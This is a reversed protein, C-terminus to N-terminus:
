RTHDSAFARYSQLRRVRHLMSDKTSFTATIKDGQRLGYLLFPQKVQYCKFRIRLRGLLDSERITLLAREPQVAVVTGVVLREEFGDISEQRQAPAAEITTVSLVVISLLHLKMM